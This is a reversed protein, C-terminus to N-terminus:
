PQRALRVELTIGEATTTCTGFASRAALREFTQRSYARRRLWTLTRRTTASAITGLQMRRVEGAIDAATAASNMDQILAVGGPRLVRHMEDLADVPRSFNKFAAQCVILDFSRDAFPMDAVDGHRFAVAVGAAAARATAIEVFTRSVDLGTVAYGGLKAVEIAFYGPGPAVELVATGAPLDAVIQEAQRRYAQLQPETGRIRAYWRASFGEMEPIIKFRTTSPM